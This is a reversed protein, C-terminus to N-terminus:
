KEAAVFLYPSDDNETIREALREFLLKWLRNSIYSPGWVWKGFLKRTLLNSVGWYHTVDFWTMLNNSNFYKKEEVLTFGAEKFQQRWRMPSVNAVHISKRNFWKKYAEGIIKKGLLRDGFTDTVVTTLLKGGRKLVRHMEKIITQSQPIHELVCNCIVTDFTGEPYPFRTGDYEKVEGYNGRRQAEPWLSGAVDIGTSIEKGRFVSWTFFGDGCGVDLARGLHDRYKEYFPAEIARIMALHPPERDLFEDLVRQDLM